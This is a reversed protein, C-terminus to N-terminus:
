ELERYTNLYTEQVMEIVTKPDKWDHLDLMWKVKYLVYAGM